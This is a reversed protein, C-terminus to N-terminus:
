KKAADLISKRAENKGEKDISFFYLEVRRNKARGEETVNTSIPDYESRGAAMLRKPLVGDKILEKTKLYAVLKDMAEQHNKIFDQHANKDTYNTVIFIGAIPIDFEKAVSCLSFFEM